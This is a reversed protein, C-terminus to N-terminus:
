LAKECTIAYIKGDLVKKERDQGARPAPRNIKKHENNYDIKLQCMEYM